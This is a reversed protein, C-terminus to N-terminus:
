PWFFASCSRLFRSSAAFLGTLFTLFALLYVFRQARPLPPLAAGPPGKRNNEGDLFFMDKEM